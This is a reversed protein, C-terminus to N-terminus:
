READGPDGLPAALQVPFFRRPSQLAAPVPLARRDLGGEFRAAVATCGVGDVTAPAADGTVAALHLRDPQGTALVGVVVGPRLEDEFARLQHRWAPTVKGRADAAPLGLLGATRWPELADVRLVWLDNGLPPELAAAGSPWVYDLDELTGPFLPRYYEPAKAILRSRHSEHVAPDGIWSPLLGDDALREQPVGAVQPAFELLQDGVTDTYGRDTWARVTALGYATLAPVHRRWMATVPHRQWGYTPVVLARLVQLTEVRQKGLRAQDLVRASEDFSPYPLFTQM